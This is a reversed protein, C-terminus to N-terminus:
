HVGAGDAVPCTVAADAVSLAANGCLVNGNQVSLKVKDFDKLKLERNDKAAPIGAISIRAGVAANAPPVVLVAKGEPGDGALLMGQGCSLAHIETCARM